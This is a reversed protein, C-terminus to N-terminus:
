LRDGSTSPVPKKIEQEHNTLPDSGTSCKESERPPQNAHGAPVTAAFVAASGAAESSSKDGSAAGPTTANPRPTALQQERHASVPEARHRDRHNPTTRADTDHRDDTYRDRTRSPGGPRRKEHRQNKTRQHPRTDHRRREGQAPVVPQRDPPSAANASQNDPPATTGDAPVSENADPEDIAAANETSEPANRDIICIAASANATSAATREHVTITLELVLPTESPQSAENAHAQPPSPMATVALLVPQRRPAPEANPTQDATEPLPVSAAPGPIVPAPVYSPTIVPYLAGTAKVRAIAGAAGAEAGPLNHLYREVARLSIHGLHERVQQVTAGGALAWSASAHRLDHVRPRWDLGAAEVAPQFVRHRFWDRRMHRTQQVSEPVASKPPRDKGAGRRAARYAAVAERCQECRCAAKTYAYLTGHTFTRGSVKFTVPEGEEPVPGDKTRGTQRGVAPFMLAERGRGSLLTALRDTLERSIAVRRWQRNKPYAKVKFGSEGAASYKPDVEIVTRAITLTCAVADLDGARLEAFEGWRCGSELLVDVLLQVYDDRLHAHLRAYEAPTLIKLPAQVVAPATVGRCPHHGVVRDNVATNFLSCMVTKCRDITNLGIGADRLLAYFARVRGPTVEIMPTVGFEPILYKELYFGYGQVTTDEGAFQPLWTERAYDAFRKRGQDVDLYRGDAVSAEASRWAREAKARRTFTGASREVGRVDRYVATYRRKNLKNERCRVYGVAVSEETSVGVGM